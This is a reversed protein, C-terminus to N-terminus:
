NHADHSPMAAECCPAVLVVTVAAAAAPKKLDTTRLDRAKLFFIMQSFLFGRFM